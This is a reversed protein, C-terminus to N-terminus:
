CMMAMSIASRSLNFRAIAARCPDAFRRPLGGFFGSAAIAVGAGTALRRLRLAACRLAWASRMFAYQALRFFAFYAGHESSTGGM